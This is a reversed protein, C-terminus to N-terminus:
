PLGRSGFTLQPAAEAQLTARGATRATTPRGGVLRRM